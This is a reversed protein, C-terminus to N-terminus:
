GESNVGDTEENFIDEEEVPTIEPDFL